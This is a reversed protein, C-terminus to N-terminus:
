HKHLNRWNSIGRHLAILTILGFTAPAIITGANVAPQLSAAWTLILTLPLCTFGILLFVLMDRRLYVPHSSPEIGSWPPPSGIGHANPRNARATYEAIWDVSRRKSM